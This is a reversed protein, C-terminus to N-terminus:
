GSRRPLVRDRFTPAAAALAALALLVAALLLPTPVETSGSNTRRSVQAPRVLPGIAHGKDDELQVPKGGQVRAERIQRKEGPSAAAEPDAGPTNNSGGFGGFEGGANGGGGGGKSSGAGGFAARRIIERCNTYEDVDSPISNLADRLEKQSYKGQLQGDDTCDRIVKGGGALAPTAQVLLLTTVLVFLRRM